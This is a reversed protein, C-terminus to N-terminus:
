GVACQAFGSACPISYAQAIGSRDLLQAMFIFLPGAVLIYNDMVAYLRNAFMGLANIGWGLVGFIVGLGGLVFALPHGMALGLLLGLFMLLTTLEPSM